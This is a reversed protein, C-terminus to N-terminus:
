NPYDKERQIVRVNQRALALRREGAKQPAVQQSLALVVRSVLLHQVDEDSPAYDEPYISLVYIHVNQSRLQDDLLLRTMPTQM